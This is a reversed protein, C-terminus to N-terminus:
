QKNEKFYDKVKKLLTLYIIVIALVYASLSVIRLVENNFYEIILFIGYISFAWYLFGILEDLLTFKSAYYIIKKLQM